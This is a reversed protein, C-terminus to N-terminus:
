RPLSLALDAHSSPEGEPCPLSQLFLAASLVDASGGPSLRRARTLDDLTALLRRGARTVCGGAALVATAGERVANLGAPGGRHLLCTDELRAMVALLADLRALEAGIGRAAYQRLIPLAHRTAHPFGSCAEGVAGAAGYRVRAVAGHSAASSDPLGPDPLRALRAAIEVAAASTTSAQAAGAVLLGLAWLAGRHTNVGGTVDSMRSEGARGIEGLRARLDPGVPMEAAALACAAFVERLAEASAHLTTLDMDTHANGGRRDVLGPKPTLDAEAHLATVALEALCAAKTHAVPTTAATM